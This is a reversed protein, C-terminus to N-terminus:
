RGRSAGLLLPFLSFAFGTGVAFAVIVAMDGLRGGVGLRVRYLGASGLYAAMGGVINAISISLLEYPSDLLNLAAMSSRRLRRGEGNYYFVGSSLWERLEQASSIGGFERQQICTFFTALISLMFSITFTGRVVSSTQTILPLNLAQIAVSALLAGQQSEEKACV